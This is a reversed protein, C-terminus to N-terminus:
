FSKPDYALESGDALDGDKEWYFKWGSDAFDRIRRATFLMGERIAQWSDVGYITLSRPELIGLSVSCGWGMHPYERPVSVRLVLDGGEGSPSV